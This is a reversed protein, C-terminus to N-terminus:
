GWMLAKPNELTGCEHFVNDGWITLEGEMSLDINSLWCYKVRYNDIKSIIRDVTFKQVTSDQNSCNKHKQDTM